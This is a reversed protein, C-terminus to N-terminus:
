LLNRVQDLCSRDKKEWKTVVQIKGFRSWNIQLLVRATMLRTPGLPRRCVQNSELIKISIHFWQKMLIHDHQKVAKQFLSHAKLWIFKTEQLAPIYLRSLHYTPKPKVELIQVNSSLLVDYNDCALNVALKVYAVFSRLPFQSLRLLLNHIFVNQLSYDWFSEPM